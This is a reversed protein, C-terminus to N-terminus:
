WEVSLVVHDHLFGQLAELAQAASYRDYFTVFAFGRSYGERDKAVYVRKVPGFGRAIERLEDEYTDEALNSIRITTTTQSTDEDGYGRGQLRRKSPPVYTSASDAGGPAQADGSRPDRNIIDDWSRAGYKRASSMWTEAPKSDMTGSAQLAEEERIIKKRKTTTLEVPHDVKTTSSVEESRADGFKAWKKREEVKKNVRRTQMSIKYKKTTKKKRNPNGECPTYEVVTKYRIGNEDPATEWEKVGSMDSEAEEIDGWM